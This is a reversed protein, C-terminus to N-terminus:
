CVENYNNLRNVASEVEGIGMVTVSPAPSRGDLIGIISEIERDPRALVWITRMGLEIAPRIDHTYTDGIMVCEEPLLGLANVTKHFNAKDPKRFGTRCSLIIVDACEIVGPLATEVGCYYPSWIDSLLGIKLGTRKLGIVTNSAGDIEVPASRQAQWLDSIERRASDDLEGFREQLIRCAHKDSELEMTMIISGIDAAPASIIKSIVKNPAVPPGTVLTAGIDFIAAKIQIKSPPM